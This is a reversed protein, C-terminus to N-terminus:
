KILEKLLHAGLARLGDALLERGKDTELAGAMMEPAIGLELNLMVMAASIGPTMPAPKVRARRKVLGASLNDVLEDEGTRVSTRDRLAESLGSYLADLIRPSHVARDMREHAEDFDVNASSAYTSAVILALDKRNIVHPIRKSVLNVPGAYRV